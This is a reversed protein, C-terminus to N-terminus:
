GADNLVVCGHAVRRGPKFRYQRHPAIMEIGGERLDKDLKDSDYARNGTLNETKAEIMYFDFGPQVRTVEHDKAAQTSAAPPL